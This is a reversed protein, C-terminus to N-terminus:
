PRRSHELAQIRADQAHLHQMLMEVFGQAARAIGPPDAAKRSAVADLLGVLMEAQKEFNKPEM